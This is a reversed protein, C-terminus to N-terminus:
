PGRGRRARWAPRLGDGAVSSGLGRRRARESGGVGPEARQECHSGQRRIKGGRPEVVTRLGAEQLCWRWTGGGTRSYSIPGWPGLLFFSRVAGATHVALAFEEKGRKFATTGEWAVHLSYVEKLDKGRGAAVQM